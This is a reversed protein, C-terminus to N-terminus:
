FFSFFIRKLFPIWHIKQIALHSRTNLRMHKVFDVNFINIPQSFALLKRKKCDVPRQSKYPNQFKWMSRSLKLTMTRIYSSPSQIVDVVSIRRCFWVIVFHKLNEMQGITSFKERISSFQEQYIALAHGVSEVQVRFKSVARVIRYIINIWTLIIKKPIKM